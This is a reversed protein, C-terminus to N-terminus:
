LSERIRRKKMLFDVGAAVLVFLWPFTPIRYRVHVAPGLTVFIFYGAFGLLFFLALIHARWIGPRLLINLILIYAGAWLALSVLLVVQFIDPRAFQNLLEGFGQQLIVESYSVRPAPRSFGFVDTLMYEYGTGFMAPVLSVAYTRFVLGRHRALLEKTTDVMYQYFRFDTYEDGPGAGPFRAQLRQWLVQIAATYGIGEEAAVALPAARFYLMVSDINTIRPTGFRAYQRIMWPSLMVFFILGFVVANKLVQTLKEKKYRWRILLLVLVVGPAYLAAPRVLTALGLLAASITLGFIRGRNPPPLLPNDISRTVGGEGEGVLPPIKNSSYKDVLYWRAFFYGFAVLVFNFVTETTALNATMLMYPEVAYFAGAVLGARRSFLMEGIKFVLVVAISAMINQLLLITWVKPVPLALISALFLPYAPTRVATPAGNRSFGDGGVISKALSVYGGADANEFFLVREGFKAYLFISVLLHLLFSILFM